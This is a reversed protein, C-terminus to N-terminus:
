FFPSMLINSQNIIKISDINGKLYCVSVIHKNDIENQWFLCSNFENETMLEIDQNNISFSFSNLPISLGKGDAKIYSEKLTWLRYFYNLRNNEKQNMLDTYEFETYFKKAINFDIPKIVEVDIGIPHNDFACVVWDGSHSINYHYGEPRILNPKGYKNVDFELQENKINLKNCIVYRALLDGFLSRQADKKSRFKLIKNKKESSVICLLKNFINKDIDDNIKIGYISVMM